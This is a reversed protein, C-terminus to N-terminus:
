ERARLPWSGLVEYRSQQPLRQSRVLVFDSVQWAIPLMAQEMRACHAKRVLTVHPKFPRQELSLGAGRLWGALNAALEGLPAPVRSPAVWGINNHTWCGWEDLTLDFPEPAIGSPPDLLRPMVENDVDGLFALTLHISDARTLRGHLADHMHRGAQALSARVQAGPWLAFFVRQTGSLAVRSGSARAM